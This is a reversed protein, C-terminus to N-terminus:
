WIKRWLLKSLVESNGVLMWWLTQVYYTNLLHSLSTYMANQGVPFWICSQGSFLFLLQANTCLAAEQESKTKM